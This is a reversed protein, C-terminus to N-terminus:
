ECPESAANSRKARFLRDFKRGHKVTKMLNAHQLGLIFIGLPWLCWFFFCLYHCSHGAARSPATQEANATSNIPM